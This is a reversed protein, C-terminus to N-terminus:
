TRRRRRMLIQSKRQRNKWLILVMGKLFGQLVYFEQYLEKDVGVTEILKAPIKVEEAKETDPSRYQKAAALYNSRLEKESGDEFRLLYRKQGVVRGMTGTLEKKLQRSFGERIEEELGGLKEMVVTGVM